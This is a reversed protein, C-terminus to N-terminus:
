GFLAELDTDCLFVAGYSITLHFLSTNWKTDKGWGEFTVKGGERITRLWAGEDKMLSGIRDQMGYRVFGELAIFATFLYLSSLKRSQLMESINKVCEADPCLGFGFPFVNGVLSVHESHLSDTFLHRKEDYFAAYFAELLCATDRYAPLALADAMKNATHIAQIYYANISVHPEHCVTGERIQVDYGDRYPKPWEVVCWKDLDQLLGDKEYDRRYAELLRCVKPYNQALYDRDGTIRYHWLVLDCLILPYEAVEQMFSCDLCTLMTDVLQTSAFGDDILKRTMSDDGTLLLGTLCTYCGDGVYFGREREMCDQIADQVGWYLTNACLGFIAQLDPDKGYEPRIQRNLTFPYHRTLLRCQTVQCGPPLLLEAYRFVKYEFPSLHNEGEKLIWPEEYDCNARLKWRVSGDENLEQGYRVTVTQAEHGTLTLELCGVFNAGFDATFVGDRCHTAVPEVYEEVLSHTAQPTLTYDWHKRYQAFEWSSDDYDPQEFGEQLSRSDYGELFATDYGVTGVETFGTHPHTRFTEDSSLLLRGDCELDLLLGHRQDGSQWSRNILGQYLTHIAIVNNGPQLFRTVDLTNYNYQFHYCPAPGQNVYRGNIYLKYYDDATIYLTAKQPLTDLAFGKRFLIHRNRHERCDLKPRGIQRFFVNRPQLDAFERDTIWKGSFRHM